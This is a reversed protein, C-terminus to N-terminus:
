RLEAHADQDSAAKPQGDDSKESEPAMEQGEAKRSQHRETRKGFIMTAPCIFQRKRCSNHGCCSGPRLNIMITLFGIQGM